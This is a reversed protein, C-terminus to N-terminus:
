PIISSRTVLSFARVGPRRRQAARVDAYGLLPEPPQKLREGLSFGAGAPPVASGPQSERDAAVEASQHAAVQRDGADIFLAGGEGHEQWGVSLVRPARWDTCNVTSAPPSVVATVCRMVDVKLPCFSFKSTEPRGTRIYTQPMVGFYWGCTPWARTNTAASM